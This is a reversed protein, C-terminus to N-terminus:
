SGKGMRDSSTRQFISIIIRLVCLIHADNEMRRLCDCIMVENLEFEGPM